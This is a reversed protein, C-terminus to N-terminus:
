ITYITSRITSIHNRHIFVAYRAAPIEVRSFNAPTGAFSSVEVGAVYEYSGDADTPRCVGYAVSGVQGPAHDIHPKFRNCLKPIGENTEFTYREGLGAVRMARHDAFRPPALDVISSNDM